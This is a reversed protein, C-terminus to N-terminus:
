ARKRELKVESKLRGNWYVNAFSHYFYKYKKPIFTVRISAESADENEKSQWGAIYAKSQKEVNWYVKHKKM